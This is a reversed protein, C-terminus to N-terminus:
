SKLKMESLWSRILQQEYFFTDQRNVGINNQFTLDTLNAAGQQLITGATDRLIYQFKLHPPYNPSIVRVESADPGNSPEFDGALDVDTFTIELRQDPQLYNPAIREIDRRLKDQYGQRGSATGDFSEQFDTFNAPEQYNVTIRDTTRDMEAAALTVVPGASTTLAAVALFISHPSTKM